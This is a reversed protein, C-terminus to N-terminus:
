RRDAGDDLTYSDLVGIGEPIIGAGFRALTGPYILGRTGQTM